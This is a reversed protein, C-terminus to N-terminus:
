FRRMALSISGPGVHTGLIPGAETITVETNQFSDLIMAKLKEASELANGHIIAVESKGNAGFKRCRLVINKLANNFGLTMGGVSPKGFDNFVIVPKINFFDLIRAVPAKLRGGKVAHDLTPTVGLLLIDQRIQELEAPIEALELGQEIYELAQKALLMIGTSVKFSDIVKIKEPDVAVAAQKAAGFVQSLESSIHISIIGRYKELLQKYLIEFRGKTAHSSKPLVSYNDILRYFRTPSLERGDQFYENDDFSISMPITYLNPISAMGVPLDCTSDVVVCYPSLDPKKELQMDDAKEQVVTGLSDATRFFDRPEDTHLHVRLLNGHSTIVLSDGLKDLESKISAKDKLPDQIVVESCFRFKSEDLDDEHSTFELPKSQTYIRSSSKIKSTNTLISSFGEVFILFGLGGADVVNHKKLVSLQEKTRELAQNASQLIEPLFARFDLVKGAIELAAQSWHSIVTLITGERPSAVAQYAAQSGAEAATAFCTTTLKETDKVERAFGHLFQALISGSNGSAGAIAASAVSDLVHGAHPTQLTEIHKVVNRLTQAMNSGTDADRVPFVNIRNLDDKARVLRTMGEKIGSRFHSGDLLNM